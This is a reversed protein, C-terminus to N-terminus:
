TTGQQQNIDIYALNEKLIGSKILFDKIQEKKYQKKISSVIEVLKEDSEVSFNARVFLATAIISLEIANFDSYKEVISSIKQKEEDSLLEELLKNEKSKIEKPRIFYGKSPVWEIEVAGIDKALDLESSVEASYPGYHYMSYDFEGIGETTLLYVLKQVITKGIQKSPNKENIKKILYYILATEKFISDKM